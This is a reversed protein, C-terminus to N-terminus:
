NWFGPFWGFGVDLRKGFGIPKINEISKRALNRKSVNIHTYLALCDKSFLSLYVYIRIYTHMSIHIIYEHSKGPPESPLSDAQLAPSRPQIGPDPPDGLSLIAVWELIRAQLIGHVSSGPLSCDCPWLSDSVVSRSVSESKMHVWIFKM